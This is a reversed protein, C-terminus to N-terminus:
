SRRSTFAFARSPWTSSSRSREPRRGTIVQPTDRRRAPRLDYGRRPHDLVEAIAQGFVRADGPPVIVANVGDKLYRPIEGIGNTVVPRGSALYEGLKTPFRATSKVDDFLPIALVAAGACA